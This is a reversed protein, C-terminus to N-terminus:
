QMATSTSCTYVIYKSDDDDDSSGLGFNLCWDDTVGPTPTNMFDERFGLSPYDAIGLMMLPKEEELRFLDDEEFSNGGGGILTSTSGMGAISSISDLRQRYSSRSRMINHIATMDINVSDSVNAGLASDLLALNIYLAHAEPLIPVLRSSSMPTPTIPDFPSELPTQISSSPIHRPFRGPVRLPSSSPLSTYPTPFVPSITHDTALPLTLNQRNVLSSPPPFIFKQPESEISRSSSFFFLYMYMYM